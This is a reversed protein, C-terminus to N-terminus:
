MELCTSSTAQQQIRRSNNNITQRQLPPQPPCKETEAEAPAQSPILFLSSFSQVSSPNPAETELRRGPSGPLGQLGVPKRLNTSIAISNITTITQRPRLPDCDVCDVVVASAAFFCVALTKASQNDKSNKAPPAHFALSARRQSHRRRLSSSNNRQRWQHRRCAM